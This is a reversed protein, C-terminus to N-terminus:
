RKRLTRLKKTAFVTACLELNKQVSRNKGLDLQLVSRPLLVQLVTTCTPARPPAPPALLDPAVMERGIEM